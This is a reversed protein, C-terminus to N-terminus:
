IKFHFSFNLSRGFGFNKSILGIMDYSGLALYAKDKIWYNFNVGWRFGAFGGYSVRSSLSFDERAKFYVGGFLYPFYNPIMITKFGFIAQWKQDIGHDPVKQVVLEFPMVEVHVDTYETVGLTDMWEINKYVTTDQNLLDSVDIGSYAGDTNVFYKNTNKNWFMIGLNNIKFNIIQRNKVKGEFIFNYNIDVSFGNGQFAWYPFMRDTMFMSASSYVDITDVDPRTYIWSENMQAKIAKSGALYNLTISSFNHKNYFGFGIKQYHMYHATSYTLSMTDGVFDGNGYMALNFLDKSIHSAMYHNDSFHVKLGFLENKFMNVSPTFSEISQEFEGGILNRNKFRDRNADKLESDITGGFIFKDMFANNLRNSAYANYSNIRILNDENVTDNFVVTPEQGFCNLAILFTSLLAIRM